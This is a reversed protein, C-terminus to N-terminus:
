ELVFIARVTLNMADDNSGNADTIIEIAEEFNIDYNSTNIAVGSSTWTEAVAEGANTNSTGVVSGAISITVRPQNAGSDDTKVKHRIMACYAKGLTWDFATNADSALLGTNAADAFKGPILFDVQIVRSSDCWYLATVDGSLPAGAVTLLNTAIATVMGYYVTGGITYKLGMGRKITGTKDATMTLTSTSAPTATFNTEQTWISSAAAPTAWSPDANHGGSNLVQGSAGHPLLAWVSAGKYLIDGREATGILDLVESPTCEEGDGADATKRGLVKGTAAFAIDSPSIDSAAGVETETGNEDKTYIKGDRKAYFNLYGTEPVAGSAQLELRLKEAVVEAMLGSRNFEADLERPAAVYSRGIDNDYVVISNSTLTYIGGGYVTLITDSGDLAVEQVVFYKVGGDQICRIIMNNWYRSVVDGVIRIQNAANYTWVEVM